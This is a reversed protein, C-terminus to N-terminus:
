PNEAKRLCRVSLITVPLILVEYVTKIVTQTIILSIIMHWSLTGAFAIPFFIVSDIAEGFITSLIARISFHVAFGKQAFDDTVSSFNGDTIKPESSKSKMRAMTYANVMSGCLFATFSAAVIRPVGGYIQEMADQSLWEPSGPLIISLQLMLTVFLSAAFGLWIMLKAKRLGYVEVVCDNIIYSIPFIIVGATITLPGIDITKIEVLNAVILCVCFTLVLILYLNSNNQKM